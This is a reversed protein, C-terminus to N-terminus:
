GDQTTCRTTSHNATIGPSITSESPPNIDSPLIGHGVVLPTNPCIVTLHRTNIVYNLYDDAAFQIPDEPSYVAELGRRTLLYASTGSYWLFPDPVRYYYENIQDGRPYSARGCHRESFFCIDFEQLAPLQDLFNWFVNTNVNFFIDDEFVMLGIHRTDGSFEEYVAHHSIACGLVTASLDRQKLWRAKHVVHKFKQQGYRIDRVGHGQDNIEIKLGDVADFFTFPINFDSLTSAAHARRDYSRELSICTFKFDSTPRM